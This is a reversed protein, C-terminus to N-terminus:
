RCDEKLQMDQSFAIEEVDVLHMPRLLMQTRDGLYIWNLTIRDKQPICSAIVHRVYVRKYSIINVHKM